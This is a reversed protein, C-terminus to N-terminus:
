FDPRLTGKRGKPHEQGRCVIRSLSRTQHSLGRCITIAKQRVMITLLPSDCGEWFTQFLFFPRWVRSSSCCQERILANKELTSFGESSIFLRKNKIFLFPNFDVKVAMRGGGTGGAETGRGAAESKAEEELSPQPPPAPAQQRQQQQVHPAPRTYTRQVVACCCLPVTDRSKQNKEHILKGGAVSYGM